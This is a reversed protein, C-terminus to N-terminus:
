IQGEAARLMAIAAQRGEPTGDRWKAEAARLLSLLEQQVAPTLQRWEQLCENLFMLDALWRRAEQHKSNHSKEVIQAGRVSKPKEIVRTTQKSSIM